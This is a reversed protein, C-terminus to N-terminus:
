KGILSILFEVHDDDDNLCPIYHFNEGGADEFYEKNEIDIEQLTELNDVGFGPSVVQVSKIGEKPLSKMTESTYPKLWESPGFRSQFATIYDKEDLSLKEAILRSTKQCLCHYPDGSDFYKKPISHYSFVLKDPKGQSEFSKKIRKSLIEILLPNDHYSNLFKVSPVWRWSKIETSVADFISGVTTASYHPFLTIVEIDRCNAEKLENLASKISPNGYRMGLAVQYNSPLSKQVKEKIKICNVLLPSGGDTWISKYLRASNFSRFNLIFINLVFWWIIKPVEIIRPDSLFEKLYRRVSLVDPSDPTGLYAILVGKKQENEHQFNQEGKFKM